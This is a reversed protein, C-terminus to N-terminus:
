KNLISIDLKVKDVVTKRFKDLNDVHSTNLFVLCLGRIGFTIISHDCIHLYIKVENTSFGNIVTDIIMSDYSIKQSLFDILGKSFEHPLRSLHIKLYLFEM